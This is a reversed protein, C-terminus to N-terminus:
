APRPCAKRADERDRMANVFTENRNPVLSVSRVGQTVGRRQRKCKNTHALIMWAGNGLFGHFYSIKM